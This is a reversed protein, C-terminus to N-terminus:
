PEGNLCTKIFERQAHRPVNQAVAQKLCETRAEQVCILADNRAAEGRLGKQRAAQRCEFRKGRARARAARPARPAPPAAEPAAAPAQYPAPPPAPAPAAEPAPAPAPESGSPQPQTQSSAGLTGCVLFLAALVMKVKTMGMKAVQDHTM